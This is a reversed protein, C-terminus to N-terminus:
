GTPGPGAIRPYWTPYDIHYVGPETGPNIQVRATKGVLRAVRSFRVM